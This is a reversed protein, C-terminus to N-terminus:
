AITGFLLAACPLLGKGIYKDNNHYLVSAHGHLHGDKWNGTAMAM